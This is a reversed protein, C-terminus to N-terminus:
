NRTPLDTSFLSDSKEQDLIAPVVNNMDVCIQNPASFITFNAFNVNWISCLVILSIHAIKM